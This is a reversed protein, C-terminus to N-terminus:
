EARDYSIAMYKKKENFSVSPMPHTKSYVNYKDIKTDLEAEVENVTKQEDIGTRLFIIGYSIGRFITVRFNNLDRVLDDLRDLHHNLDRM